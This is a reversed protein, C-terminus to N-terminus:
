GTRVPTVARVLMLVCLTVVVAAMHALYTGDSAYIGHHMMYRLDPWAFSDHAREYAFVLWVKSWCLGLLTYVIASRRNWWEQTGHITAVAVAPFLHLLHRSEPTIVMLLLLGFALVPAPGTSAVARAVQPWAIMSVCIIPGFYVVHHVLNWAPGRVSLAAYFRVMDLPELGPDTGIRTMWLGRMGVVVGAIVLGFVIRRIGVHRLYERIAWTSRPRALFYGAIASTVVLLPITILWLRQHSLTVWRAVDEPPDLLTKVIWYAIVAGIGLAVLAALRRSTQDPVAVFGRARPFVVAALSIPLLAPWTFATALSLVGLSLTRGALYAWVTGLGLGFASVDTMTPYYLANRAIVFNLFVAVFATWTAVRSWDLVRAIRWLAIAALLLVLSNLLQFALIVAPTTPAIGAMRLSYHVIASPLVRQAHFTNIGRDLVEGQFDRAWATYARGDWGEGGNVGIREGFGITCTCGLAIVVLAIVLDRGRAGEASM